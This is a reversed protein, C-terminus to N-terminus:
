RSDLLGVSGAGEARARDLYDERVPAFVDLVTAGEPGFTAAHEVGGPMVYGEMPGLSHEVGDVVLVMSGRLVVGLQEHPHRHLSVTTGAGCEVLNVMAGDGFLPKADIGPALEFGVVDAFNLFQPPM